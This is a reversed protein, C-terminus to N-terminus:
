VLPPERRSDVATQCALLKLRTRQWGQTNPHDPGYVRSARTVVNELIANGEDFRGLSALVVAHREKAGLTYISEMGFKAETFAVLDESTKHAEQVLKLPLLADLLRIMTQLYLVPDLEKVEPLLLARLPELAERYQGRRVLMDARRFKMDLLRPGNTGNYQLAENFLHTAADSEGNVDLSHALTGLADYRREPHQGSRYRRWARRRMEIELAGEFYTKCNGCVRYADM